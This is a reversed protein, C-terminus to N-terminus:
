YTLDAAALTRVLDVHHRQQEIFIHASTRDGTHHTLNRYLSQPNGTVTPRVAACHVASDAVAASSIKQIKKSQHVKIKLGPVPKNLESGSSSHSILSQLQNGKLLILFTRNQRINGTELL